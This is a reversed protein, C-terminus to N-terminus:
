RRYRCCSVRLLVKEKRNQEVAKEKKGENKQTAKEATEAGGRRFNASPKLSRYSTSSGGHRGVAKEEGFGQGGIHIKAPKSRPKVRRADLIIRPHLNRRKESKQGRTERKEKGNEEAKGEGSRFRFSRGTSKPARAATAKEFCFEDRNVSSVRHEALTAAQVKQRSL